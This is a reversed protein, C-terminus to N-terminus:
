FAYGIHLLYRYGITNTKLVGDAEVKKDSFVYNLGPVKQVLLQKLGEVVQEKEAPTLNTNGSFTAQYKYFGLGPGVMVMDVAIHKWLLLQYGLEFGITNVSFESNTKIGTANGGKTREWERENEFRSYSYYPGIYLGHPANFKNEKTLYFRFDASMNVGKREGEKRTQFSDTEVLLLKPLAAKGANISFSRKPSLIREYGLVIYKDFGFLVAGSLNYRIVNKYQRVTSDNPTMQAISSQSAFMTVALVCFLYILKPKM